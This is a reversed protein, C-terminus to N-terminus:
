NGGSAPKWDFAELRARRRRPPPSEQTQSRESHRGGTVKGLDLLGQLPESHRNCLDLIAADKGDNVTWKRTAPRDCQACHIM